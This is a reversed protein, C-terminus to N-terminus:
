KVVLTPTKISINYLKEAVSGILFSSLWNQGKDGIILLNYHNEDALKQLCVSIHNEKKNIKHFSSNTTDIKSDLIFKELQKEAHEKTMKIIKEEELFPLYHKPTSYVHAFDVKTDKKRLKSAIRAARKAIISFDTGVLIKNFLENSNQPALLISCKLSRLLKGTLTASSDADNKKGLITLDIKFRSVTYSILSETFPDNSIILEYNAKGTYHTQIKQSIEKQIQDQINDFDVLHDLIEDTNHKKVNHVFYIKKAKVHNSFFSAYQILSEDMQSRDLAVLLHKFKKM